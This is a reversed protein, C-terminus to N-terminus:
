QNQPLRLLQVQKISLVKLFEKITTNSTEFPADEFSTGAELIPVM